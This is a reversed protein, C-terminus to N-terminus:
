HPKVRALMDPVEPQDKEPVTGRPLGIEVFIIKDRDVAFHHILWEETARDHVVVQDSFHLAVDGMTKLYRQRLTKAGPLGETLYIKFPSLNSLEDPVDWYLDELYLQFHNAHMGVVVGTGYRLKAVAGPFVYAGGVPFYLVDFEDGFNPM